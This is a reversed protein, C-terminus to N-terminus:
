PGFGRNVDWLPYHPLAKSPDAIFTQTQAVLDRMRQRAAPGVTERGLSPAQEGSSSVGPPLSMGLWIIMLINM